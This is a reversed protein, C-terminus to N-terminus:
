AAFRSIRVPLRHGNWAGPWSEIVGPVAAGCARCRGETLNWETLDYGDRGILLVGCGHCFTSEGEPDSVNGTYAYRVGNALAIKRARRLTEPPTPPVDRM